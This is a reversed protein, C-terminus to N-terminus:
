PNMGRTHSLRSGRAVIILASATLVLSSLASAPIRQWESGAILAEEDELTELEVPTSWTAGDGSTSVYLGESIRSYSEPYGTVDRIIGRYVAVLLGDRLEAISLDGIDMVTGTLPEDRLFVAPRGWTELDPSFHASWEDSITHPAVDEMLLLYGGAVDSYLMYPSEGRLPMGLHTLHRPETWSGDEGLVTLPLGQEDFAEGTKWERHVGVIAVRGEEDLFPWVEHAITQMEEAWIPTDRASGWGSESSHIRYQRGTLLFIDGNEMELLKPFFAGEGRRSEAIVEPESWERGDESHIFYLDSYVSARASRHQYAMLWRGDGSILLDWPGIYANKFGLVKDEAELSGDLSLRAVYVSSGVYSPLLGLASVIRTQVEIAVYLQGDSIVLIPDLNRVEVNPEPPWGFIVLARNTIAYSSVSTIVVIATFLAIRTPPIDRDPMFRAASEVGPCWALYRLTVKRLNM